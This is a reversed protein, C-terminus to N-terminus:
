RGRLLLLLLLLVASHASFRRAGEEADMIEFEVEPEMLDPNLELSVRPAAVPPQPVSHGGCM